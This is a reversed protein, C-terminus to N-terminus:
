DDFLIHKRQVNEKNIKQVKDVLKQTGRKKPKNKNSLKADRDSQLKSWYVSEDEGQLLFFTYNEPQANAAKKASESDKFRIYGSCDGEILDVYAVGGEEGFYEKIQKRSFPHPSKVKVIVNSVFEVKSKMQSVPQAEKVPKETIAHEQGIVTQGSQDDDRRIRSLTQKLNTMSKKQLSLYESRLDLWEKKSIVRLEPVDKGKQKKKKRKRKKSPTTKRKKAGIEEQDTVSTIEVKRKKVEDTSSEGEAKRKRVETSSSDSVQGQGESLKGTKAASQGKDVNVGVDVESDTMSVSADSQTRNKRKKVKKVKENDEEESKEGCASVKTEEVTKNKDSIESSKDGLVEVNTEIKTKHDSEISVTKRQKMPSLETGDVSSESTQRRRRRQRKSLKTPSEGPKIDKIDKSECPLSGTELGEAEEAKSGLKRQLQLLQKRTKPFKGPQGDAEVPPNNLEECAKKAAEVTDFEVFAFGKPDGTTKYRPISVYLVEGCTSFMRRVWMHDVHHPLCEVYITREDIQKPEALPRSRKVKKGDDSV